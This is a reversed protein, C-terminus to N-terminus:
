RKRRWPRGTTPAARPLGDAVERFAGQITKEYAAVNIDKQVTAIDLRAQNAGANFIPLTIQPAFAWAMGGTFLSALATSAV